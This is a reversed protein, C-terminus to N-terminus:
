CSLAHGQYQVCIEQLAKGEWGHLGRAAATADTCSSLMARLRACLAMAAQMASVTLRSELVELLAHHFVLAERGHGEQMAPAQLQCSCQVQWSSTGQWCTKFTGARQKGAQDWSAGASQRIQMHPTLCAHPPGHVAPANSGVGRVSALAGVPASTLGAGLSRDLLRAALHTLM